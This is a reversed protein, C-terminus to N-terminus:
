FITGDSELEIPPGGTEPRRQKAIERGGKWTASELVQVLKLQEPSLGLRVRIDEAIRDLLIVTLARWEVVAPAAASAQPLGTNENTPLANPKLTLVGFDLFLGGNRYEPLGTMDEVGTFQWKTTREIAEVVSYTMWQTLKHFPVLDDGEATSTGKLVGCPWVDGLSVDGLKTRSAPWITNLGDGLVHWLASIHVTKISGELKSQTNLFDILNGPRPNTGFLSPSAQLALGLNKLLSARGELGILPNGQSVQMGSALSHPTIKLLAEADVRYPQNPDSSFTGNAYMYFSAIALGESRGYKSGTEKEHYAWDKGAGADLLVSVIFLDVLRKGQEQDDVSEANWKELLPSIRSGGADFHRWRGHPPIAGFNTGFDRTIIEVCFKAVDAEKEPHYDFYELKNQRALEFVQGCRERIAPLTRLYAAKQELPIKSALHLM